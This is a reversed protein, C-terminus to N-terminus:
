LSTINQELLRAKELITLDDFQQQLFEETCETCYDLGDWKYEANECDCSDCYIVRVNRNPCLDGMCPFGCNVCRNEIREM